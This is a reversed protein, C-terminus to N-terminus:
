EKWQKFYFTFLFFLARVTHYAGWQMLMNFFGYRTRYQEPTIRLCDNEIIEELTQSVATAFHEDEVDLNLELSAFASINNINYSGVTVWKNDYTGMKGHLITPQYEYIEINNKMLWRYVYREAYKSIKIDTNGAFVLKIKVNRKAAKALKKRMDMGPILYSSMIIIHSKANKMMGSYSETIQTLRQVWDNSRVRVRCNETIAPLQEQQWLLTKRGLKSKSWLRLSVKLVQAAIEGEAYLAWDLWAKVGGIDNYRNSINMGGVLCCTSDVVTVKHHLRRGLYFGKTRFLPEFFRLYVGAAVLRNRFAHSLGGSAYGDLLLFVQVKREAAKILADAIIEGTEDEDFIYVQVHISNQAEGILRALLSFYEVGGRILKVRNRQTYLSVSSKRRIKM